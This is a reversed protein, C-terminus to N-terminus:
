KNVTLLFHNIQLIDNIMTQNQNEFKKACLKVQNKLELLQKKYTFLNEKIKKLEDKYIFSNPIILKSIITYAEDIKNITNDIYITIADKLYDTNVKIIKSM